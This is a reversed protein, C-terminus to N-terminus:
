DHIWTMVQEFNMNYEHMTSIKLFVSIYKVERIELHVNYLKPVESLPFQCVIKNM